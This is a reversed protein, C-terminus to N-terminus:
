GGEDGGRHVYAIEAAGDARGTRQGPRVQAAGPLNGQHSTRAGRLDAARPRWIEQACGVEITGFRRREHGGECRCSWVEHGEALEGSLVRVGRRDVQHPAKEGRVM